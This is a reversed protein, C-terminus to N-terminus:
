DEEEEEVKMRVGEKERWRKIGAQRGTGRRKRRARPQTLFASPVVTPGSSHISPHQLPPHVWTLDSVASQRCEKM